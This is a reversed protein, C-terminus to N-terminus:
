YSRSLNCQQIMGKGEKWWDGSVDRGAEKKTAKRQKKKEVFSTAANTMPPKIELEACSACLRLPQQGGCDFVKKMEDVTLLDDPHTPLIKTPHDLLATLDTGGTGIITKIEEDEAKFRLKDHKELVAERLLTRLPTEGTEDDLILLKDVAPKKSSSGFLSVKITICRM